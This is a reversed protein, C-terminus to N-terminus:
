SIASTPTLLRGAARDAMLDLVRDVVAAVVREPAHAADVVHGNPLQEVLTRYANRQRAIEELPLEQKRGRLVEAPADLLIVLDPKPVVRWVARLALKPGGYRYRRPDVLADVLYRDFLVLTSRALAPRVALLYGLSYDLAWYALKLLSGLLSRPPRGHPDVVRHAAAPRRLIAPALHYSAVRRFSPALAAGVASLTTSKGAGDPGLLVLHVGSPNRWRRIRRIADRTWYRLSAWASTPGRLELLERRLSPLHNVLEIWDGSRACRAVLSCGPESWFRAIERDCGAPDRRYLTSLLRGHEEALFRKAVKKVLYCGFEIAPSPVWVDRARRRSALIEEGSYFVRGNRRYDSSVDLALFERCTAGRDMALVLYHATAEHQLWQVLDAGLQRRNERLISALAHPLIPAPMVCDVDSRVGTGLERGGHLVCHPIGRADLVAFLSRLVTERSNRDGGCPLRSSRPRASQAFSM